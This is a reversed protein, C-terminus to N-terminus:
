HNWKNRTFAGVNVNSTLNWKKSSSNLERRQQHFHWVKIASKEYMFSFERKSPDVHGYPPKRFYPYGWIMWKYISKGNYVMWKPTVWWEHFGGYRRAAENMWAPWIWWRVNSGLGGIRAPLFCMELRWINCFATLNSLCIIAPQHNLWGESFYSLWNPNDNGIGEPLSVYSHFIVDQFPFSM